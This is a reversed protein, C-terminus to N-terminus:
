SLCVPLLRKYSCRDTVIWKTSKLEFNSHTKLKSLGGRLYSKMHDENGQAITNAVKLQAQYGNKEEQSYNKQLMLYNM